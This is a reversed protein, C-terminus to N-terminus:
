RKGKGKGNGKAREGKVPAGGSAQPVPVSASAQVTQPTVRVSVSRPKGRGHSQLYGAEQVRSILNAAGGRSLNPWKRRLAENPSQGRNTANAYVATVEEYPYERPRGGAGADKTATPTSGYIGIPPPVLRRGAERRMSDLPLNRLDTSRISGMEPDRSSELGRAEVSVVQLEGNVIALRLVVIFRGYRFTAWAFGKLREPPGIRKSRASVRKLKGGTEILSWRRSTAM